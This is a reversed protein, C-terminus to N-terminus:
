TCQGSILFDNAFLLAAACEISRGNWGQWGMYPSHGEVFVATTVTFLFLHILTFLCLVMKTASRVKLFTHEQILLSVNSKVSFYDKPSFISLVAEVGGGGVGSGGGGM